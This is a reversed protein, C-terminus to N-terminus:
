HSDYTSQESEERSDTIIPSTCSNPQLVTISILAELERDDIRFREDMFRKTSEGKMDRDDVVVVEQHDVLEELPLM